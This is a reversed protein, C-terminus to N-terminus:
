ISYLCYHWTCYKRSIYICTVFLVRIEPIVYMTHIACLIVTAKPVPCLKTDRLIEVILFPYPEM